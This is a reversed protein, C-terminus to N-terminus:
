KEEEVRQKCVFGSRWHVCHPKVKSRCMGDRSYICKKDLKRIENQQLNGSPMMARPM